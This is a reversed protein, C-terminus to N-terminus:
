AKKDTTAATTATTAAPAAPKGGDIFRSLHNELQKALGLTGTQAAIDAFQSDQMERFTDVASNGFLDDGGLDAKRASALMQRVFIAEFQKAAGALQEKQSATKNAAPLATWGSYDTSIGTM